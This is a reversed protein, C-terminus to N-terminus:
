KAAFLIPNLSSPNKPRTKKIEQIKQNKQQPEPRQAKEGGRDQEVTPQQVIPKKSKFYDLGSSLLSKPKEQLFVRKIYDSNNKLLSSNSYLNFENFEDYLIWKQPNSRSYKNGLTDSSSPVFKSNNSLEHSSNFYVPDRLLGIHGEKYQATLDIDIEGAKISKSEYIRILFNWVMKEVYVVFTRPNPDGKIDNQLESLSHYRKSM